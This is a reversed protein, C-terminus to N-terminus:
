EQKYDQKITPDNKEGDITELAPNRMIARARGARNLFFQAPFASAHGKINLRADHSAHGEIILVIL